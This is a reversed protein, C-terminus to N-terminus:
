SEGWEEADVWFDDVHEPHKVYADRDARLLAARVADAVGQRAAASVNIGLEHARSALRDDLTFTSRSSAM